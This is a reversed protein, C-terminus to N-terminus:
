IRLQTCLIGVHSLQSRKKAIVRIPAGKEQLDNLEDELSRKLAIACGEKNIQKLPATRYGCSLQGYIDQKLTSARQIDLADELKSIDNCLDKYEAQHSKIEKQIEEYQRQLEDVDCLEFNIIQKKLVDVNETMGNNQDIISDLTQTKRKSKGQLNIIEANLIRCEYRLKKMEELIDNANM